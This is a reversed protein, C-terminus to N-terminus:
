LVTACAPGDPLTTWPSAMGCVADSHAGEGAGNTATVTYAYAHLPTLGSDTWTTTAADLVAVAAGDRYVTYGTVPLGGDREPAIWSLTVEGLPGPGPAASLGVPAGPATFTTVSVPGGAPGEGLADVASVAYTYTAGDDLGADTYALQDGGIEALLAFSGDELARYVRYATVGLLSSAPEWALSAEGAGPGASAQLNAPAGPGLPEASAPAAAASLAVAAILAVFTRPSTM